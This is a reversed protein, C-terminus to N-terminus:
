QKREEKKNPGNLVQGVNNTINRKLASKLKKINLPKVLCDIGGEGLTRVYSELSAHATMVVVAPLQALKGLDSFLELGNGDPLQLDLLIAAPQFRKLAQRASELSGAVTVTFEDEVALQLSETFNQEDDVIM